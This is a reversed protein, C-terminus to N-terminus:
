RSTSEREVLRFPSVEDRGPCKDGDIRTVLLEVARRATWAHDPAITTLSPVVYRSETIDDIGALLLDDPVRLKHDALGRMVGIALEDAIVVAGDAGVDHLRRAALRGAEMTLDVTPVILDCEMVVGADRLASLYGDLRPRLPHDAEDLDIGVFAVRRCGRKLMLATAAQAGDHNPLTIHDLDAQTEREGLLVLPLTGTAQKQVDLKVSSLILGDYDLARSLTIAAMERDEGAGTEEVVVRYGHSAAATTVLTGLRGFYASDLTPIALGIVGSRGARLNRASVNMRYGTRVLEAEVRRRVEEGVGARGNVVNSVTM